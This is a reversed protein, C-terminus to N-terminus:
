PYSTRGRLGFVVESGFRISDFLLPFHRKQHMKFHVTSTLSYSCSCSNFHPLLCRITPRLRALSFSLSRFHSKAPLRIVSSSTTRHIRNGSHSRCVSWPTLRCLFLSLSLSLSLPFQCTIRLCFFLRVTVWSSMLM